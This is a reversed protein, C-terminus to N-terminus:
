ADRLGTSRKAERGRWWALLVLILGALCLPAGISAPLLSSSIGEALAAASDSTQAKYTEIM